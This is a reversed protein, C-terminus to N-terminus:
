SSGGGPPTSGRALGVEEATPYSAQAGARRVAFSGVRVALAVADALGAGDALQCALAGVVADGAGTTDMVDDVAPAPVHGSGGADAWCAGDAGATVVASRATRALDRAADLAGGAGAVPRGLVAAAESENVVLPDCLALVERGVAAPPALNVVPRAGTAAAGRVAAALVPVPVEAQVVVVSGATCSRGVAATVAAPDVEANAGPVVVIANQGDPTVLVVAAGTPAAATVAVDGTDVGEARLAALLVAGDADDGVCGVFSVSGAGRGQRLRAAAVAQNAGKGGPHLTMADALVTEGPQPAAGLTIVRDRNASGVVVVAPGVARAPAEVVDEGGAGGETM